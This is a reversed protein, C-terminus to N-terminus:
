DVRFSDSNLPRYVYPRHCLTGSLLILFLLAEHDMPSRERGLCRCTEMHQQAFIVVVPIPLVPVCLSLYGERDRHLLLPTKDTSQLRGQDSPQDCYGAM